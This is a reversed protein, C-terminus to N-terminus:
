GAKREKFGAPPVKGQIENEKGEGSGFVAPEVMKKVGVLWRLEENRRWRDEKPLSEMKM